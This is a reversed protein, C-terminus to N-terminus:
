DKKDDALLDLSLSYSPVNIGGGTAGKLKQLEKKTLEKFTHKKKM